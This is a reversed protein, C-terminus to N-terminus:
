QFMGGPPEVSGQGAVTMTLAYVPIQTFTVTVVKDANMTVNVPNATDTVDGTWGAFMWGAAPQATLTVVGGGPYASLAPNRGVPGSGNANITLTYTAATGTCTAWIAFFFGLLGTLRTTKM